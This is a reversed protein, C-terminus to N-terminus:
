DNSSANPDDKKIHLVRKNRVFRNLDQHTLKVAKLEQVMTHWLKIRNERTDEKLQGCRIFFEEAMELNTLFAAPENMAIAGSNWVEVFLLRVLSEMWLDAENRM